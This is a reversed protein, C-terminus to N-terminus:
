QKLYTIKNIDSTEFDQMTLLFFKWSMECSIKLEIKKQMM